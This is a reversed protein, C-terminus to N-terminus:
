EINQIQERIKELEEKIHIASYSIDASVSKSNITNAERHMEQCLFNLKRGAEESNELTERFVKIHSRLRVCEETLDYKESLLALELKLRDDFQDFDELLKKARQVLKQHYDTISGTCEEEISELSKEINNIRKSIDDSLQLGENMRMKNMEDIATGIAKEVIPYENEMELEPEGLFMERLALLNDLTVKGKVRSIKKIKKLTEVATKIAETDYFLAPSNNTERKVTISIQIKGRSINNKVIERVQFEKSSLFRPLKVALDFYRSNLSKIEAEVILDSEKVISKGYGTMSIIM